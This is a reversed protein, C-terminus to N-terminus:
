TSCQSSISSCFRFYSATAKRSLAHKHEPLSMGRELRSKIRESQNAVFINKIRPETGCKPGVRCQAPGLLSGFQFVKIRGARQDGAAVNNRQPHCAHHQHSQVVQVLHGETLDKNM